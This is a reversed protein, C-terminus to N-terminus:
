WGAGLITFTVVVNVKKAKGGDQYRMQMTVTHAADYCNDQYLGCNWRFLDNFVEIYVHGNAFTSPNGNADFWAGYTGNTGNHGEEGDTTLPVITLKSADFQAEGIGILKLFQAKDVVVKNTQSFGDRWAMATTVRLTGMLDNVGPVVPNPDPYANVIGNLYAVRKTLWQHLAAVESDFTKGKIPWRTMDRQMAGRKLEKVYRECESWPKAVISDALRNWEAKYDTVFAQCGFLDTFFAPINRDYGNRRLPDSGMVLERYDAYYNHGTTMTAWDFDYGADFDWLPGMTWKGGADKFLFVSRPAVLEVNEVLEQLQLFHIMTPVDLLSYIRASDKSQIAQELIALQRKVSDLRNATLAEDKPYKVCVPMTYVSSWFNDTAAPSLEPGDDRDLSLLMGQADSVNVRNKGQQVQETLQYVGRYDGNVFLEVYRTHNTFPMGMWTAAEFVFTNMLDTIDRYNALLVWSKAKGLGLLKHKADLKIRYPKKDYWSWSSNGRGRISAPASYNSFSGCANLSIHCPVYAERSVIDKGDNTTVYLQFVRYHNKTEELPEDEFTVSDVKAAHFPVSVGDPRLARLLSRDASFDFHDIDTTVYPFDWYTNYDRMRVHIREQAQATLTMLALILWVIRRM